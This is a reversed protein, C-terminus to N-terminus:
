PAPPTPTLAPPPPAPPVPEAEPMVIPQQDMFEQIKAGVDGWTPPREGRLDAWAARVAEVNSVAFWAVTAVTALFVLAWGTRVLGKM